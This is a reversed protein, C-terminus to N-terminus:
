TRLAVLSVGVRRRNNELLGPRVSGALRERWRPARVLFDVREKDRYRSPGRCRVEATALRVRPDLPPPRLQARGASAVVV